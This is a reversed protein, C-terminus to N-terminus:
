TQTSASERHMRRELALEIFLDRLCRNELELLELQKTDVRSMPHHGILEDYAAKAQIIGSGSHRDWGPPGLRQRHVEVDTQGGSTNPNSPGAKIARGRRVDRCLRGVNRLRQLLVPEVIGAVLFDAPVQAPPCSSEQELFHVFLLSLHRLVFAL